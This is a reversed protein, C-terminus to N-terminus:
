TVFRFSELSRIRTMFDYLFAAGLGSSVVEGARSMLMGCLRLDTGQISRPSTGLAFAGGSANDAITDVLKINWKEIASDVIELAPICYAIASMLDTLSAAPNEVDSNMIFAIEAEVRPQMFKAVPVCDGDQFALDGWLMGYDPEGVGLQMQVAKSTLGIKRGVLPRRAALWRRTNAEQIRYASSADAIGFTERIPAVAALDTRAAFIADAASRESPKLDDRDMSM